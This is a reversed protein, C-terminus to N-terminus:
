VPSCPTFATGVGHSWWRGVRGVRGTCVLPPRLAVGDNWEARTEPHTGTTVPFGGRRKGSGSKPPRWGATRVVQPLGSGPAQLLVQPQCPSHASKPTVRLCGSTGYFVHSSQPQASGPSRTGDGGRPLAARQQGDAHERSQPEDSAM